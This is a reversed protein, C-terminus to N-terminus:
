MVKDETRSFYLNRTYHGDLKDKEADALWPRAQPPDPWLKPGLNNFMLEIDENLEHNDQLQRVSSNYLGFKGNIYEQNILLQALVGEQAGQRSIGRPSCFGLSKELSLM